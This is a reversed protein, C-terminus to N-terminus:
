FLSQILPAQLRAQLLAELPDMGNAVHAVTLSEILSDHHDAHNMGDHLGHCGHDLASGHGLASNADLGSHELGVDFGDMATQESNFTPTAGKVGGIEM